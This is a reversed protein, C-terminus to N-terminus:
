GCNGNGGVDDDWRVSSASILCGFPQDDMKIKGNGDDDALTSGLLSAKYGSKSLM